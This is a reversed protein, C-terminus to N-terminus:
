LLRFSGCLSFSFFARIEETNAGSVLFADRFGNATLEFVFILRDVGLEFAPASAL